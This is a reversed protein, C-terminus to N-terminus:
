IRDVRRLLTPAMAIRDALAAVRASNVQAAAMFTAASEPFQTAARRYAGARVAFHIMREVTRGGVEM